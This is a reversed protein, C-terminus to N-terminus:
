VVIKSGLDEPCESGPHVVGREVLRELGARREPSLAAKKEPISLGPVPLTVAEAFTAVAVVTSGKGPLVDSVSPEGEFCSVLFGTGFPVIRKGGFFVAAVAGDKGVAVWELIVENPM